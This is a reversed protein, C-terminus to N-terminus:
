SLAHEPRKSFQNFVLDFLCLGFTLKTTQIALSLGLGPGIFAFCRHRFDRIQFYTVVHGRRLVPM